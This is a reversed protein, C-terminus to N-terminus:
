YPVRTTPLPRHRVQLRMYAPEGELDDVVDMETWTDIQERSDPKGGTHEMGAQEWGRM